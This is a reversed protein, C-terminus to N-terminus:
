PQPALHITFQNDVCVNTDCGGGVTHIQDAVEGPIPEGHSRVVLHIEAGEPNILGGPFGLIMESTDGVSLHGAFAGVSNMGIVHGAARGVWIKAAEIQELNPVEPALFIDGEGCKAGPFPAPYKCQDPDNFVVWWMTYAAGPELDSTRLTM